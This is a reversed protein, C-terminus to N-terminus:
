KLTKPLYQHVKLGHALVGLIPKNKKKGKPPVLALMSKKFRCKNFYILLYIFPSNTARKTFHGSFQPAPTELLIFFRAIKAYHKVDIDKSWSTQLFHYKSINLADILGKKGPLRIHKNRQWPLSYRLFPMKQRQISTKMCLSIM